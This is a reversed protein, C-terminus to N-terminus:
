ALKPWNRGNVQGTTEAIREAHSRLFWIGAGDGLVPTGSEIVEDLVRELGSDHQHAGLDFRKAVALGVNGFAIGRHFIALEPQDVRMDRLEAMGLGGGEAM